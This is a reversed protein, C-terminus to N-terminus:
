KVPFWYTFKLAFLNDGTEGLATVLDGPEVFRNRDSRNLKNQQWVLFFTSGPRWEYRLVLSSRFSTVLFDPDPVTFVDGQHSVLFDGDSATGIVNYSDLRYSGPAPLEGPNLYNGSAVFPEAYMEVTLDPSFAYNVRTQLSLTSRDISSFVYRKGYTDSEGGTLTTIYQRPNTQRSYRPNVQFEWRGGTRIEASPNIALQWGGFEDWEYNIFARSFINSSRNTFVGGLLGWSRASGMLPGGRTLRDNLTRPSFYFDTFFTWFNKLQLRPGFRIENERRTGGYNWSINAKMEFRYNQYWSGPQTERYTVETRTSIDDSRFLIGTDNLEFGPSKTSAEVLGIWHRGSNKSFQLSARM